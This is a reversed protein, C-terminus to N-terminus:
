AHLEKRAIWFAKDPKIALIDIPGGVTKACNEFAMTKITVDVAYNAFDIADQLTFFQFNIGYSPLDIYQGNPQHVGVPQVLKSLTVTEGDWVAGPASTDQVIVSQNAIVVRYVKPFLEDKNYGAVIFNVNIGSSVKSFFENISKATDEVSVDANVKEAIFKEIFGSIPVGNVDGAGCTSIGIRSNFLYTKYTTDTTHAGVIRETGGDLKPITLSYTSRSDSAMIIGENTHVTIIFSM